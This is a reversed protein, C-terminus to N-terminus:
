RLWEILRRFRRHLRLYRSSIARPLSKGFERRRARASARVRIAEEYVAEVKEGFAQDSYEGAKERGASVLSRARAKDTLALLLAETLQGPDSFLLGDVGDEIMSAFSPDRRAAVPVEAAMAELVTLGQTETASATVFVDAARYYEPIGSWPRSGAFLFSGPPCLEGALAELAPREPGEGMVLLKAAPLREVLAPLARLIMDISKEKALRGIFAVLPADEAIGLEARARRRAEPDRAAERFRELAVGSPLVRIPAKVEYSALLDRVKDTPAIVADCTNCFDRSLVRVMDSSLQRLAANRRPRGAGRDLYHLYDKYMTHYTHVIPLDLVLAVIKGFIGISFETQTHVVDLGYGKIALLTGPAIGICIRLSKEFFVPMSPQRFVREEPVANGNSPAFVFVEHGRAELAGKLTRISAVVGSIDPTYSDTFIGVKM